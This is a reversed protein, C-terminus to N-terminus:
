KRDRRHFGKHMELEEKKAETIENVEAQKGELEVKKEEMESKKEELEKEYADIEECTEIFSKLLQEDFDSIQSIYESSNLM